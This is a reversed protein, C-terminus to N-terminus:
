TIVEAAPKPYSKQAAAAYTGAGTHGASNLLNKQAFGKKGGGFAVPTLGTLDMGQPDLAAQEQERTLASTKSSLSFAPKSAEEKKESLRARKRLAEKSFLLADFGRLVNGNQGNESTLYVSEIDGIMREVKALDRDLQGRAKAFDEFLSTATSTATSTM